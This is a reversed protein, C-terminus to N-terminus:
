YGNMYTHMYLMPIANLAVTARNELSLAVVPPLVVIGTWIGHCHITNIMWMPWLVSELLLWRVLSHCFRVSVMMILEMM